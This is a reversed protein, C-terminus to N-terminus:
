GAFHGDVTCLCLCRLASTRLPGTLDHRQDHKVDRDQDHEKDYRREAASMDHLGLSDDTARQAEHLPEPVRGGAALHVALRRVAHLGSYGWMEFEADEAEVLDPETWQRAGTRELLEGIAVFLVSCRSMTTRESSFLPADEYYAGRIMGPPVYASLWASVLDGSSNGAVIVPRRIRGSIFRVLDNRMNDITFRGPTRTSRGQGRLGVAYVEFDDALLRIASCWPLSTPM